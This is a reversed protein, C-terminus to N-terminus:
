QQGNQLEQMQQQLKEMEAQHKKQLEAFRDQLKDMQKTRRVQAREAQEARKEEHPDRSLGREVRAEGVYQDFEQQHAEILRRLAANRALMQPRM